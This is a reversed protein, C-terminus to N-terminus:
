RRALRRIAERGDKVRRALQAATETPAPNPDVGRLRLLESGLIRIGGGVRPMPIVKGTQTWRRATKWTVRMLAALDDLTYCEAPDVDAFSTIPV